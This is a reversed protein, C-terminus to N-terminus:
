SPPNFGITKVTEFETPISLIYQYKATLVQIYWLFIMFISTTKEVLWPRNKPRVKWHSPPRLPATLLPHLLSFFMNQLKKHVYSISKWFGVKGLIWLFVKEIRWITYSGGLINRLADLTWSRIHSYAWSLTQVQIM